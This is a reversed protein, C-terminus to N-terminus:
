ARTLRRSPPYLPGFAGGQRSHRSQARLAIETQRGPSPRRLSKIPFKGRLIQGSYSSRIAATDMAQIHRLSPNLSDPTYGIRPRRHIAWLKWRELSRLLDAPWSNPRCRRPVGGVQPESVTGGVAGPSTYVTPAHNRCCSWVHRPWSGPRSSPQHGSAQGALFEFWPSGARPQMRPWWRRCRSCPRLHEPRAALDRRSAISRDQHGQSRPEPLSARRDHMARGVAAQDPAPSGVSPWDRSRAMM